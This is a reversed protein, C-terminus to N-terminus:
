GLLFKNLTPVLNFSLIGLLLMWILEVIVVLVHTKDFSHSLVHGLVPNTYSHFFQPPIRKNSHYMNKKLTRAYQTANVLFFAM